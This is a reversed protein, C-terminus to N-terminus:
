DEKMWCAICDDISCNCDNGGVQESSVNFEHPCYHHCLEEVKIEDPLELLPYFTKQKGKGSEKDERIIGIVKDFRRVRKENGLCMRKTAM